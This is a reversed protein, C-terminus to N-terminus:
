ASAAQVVAVVGAQDVRERSAGMRALVNMIDGQYDPDDARFFMKSDSKALHVFDFDVALIVDNDDAANVVSEDLGDKAIPTASNDFRPMVDTRIIDFGLLKILDGDKFVAGVKDYQQNNDFTTDTLLQTYADETMFFARKGTNLVLKTQEIIIAKASQLDAVTFKKRNGTADALYAVAAAGTTDVVNAANLNLMSTNKGGWRFLTNQAIRKILENLHDQLVEPVKSYSLEWKEAEHVVTTDSSLEDIVYTIDSDARKVMQIPYVSRNRKVNPAAGSQPIHVVTSNLVNGARQKARSLWEYTKYLNRAIMTDWFEVAVDFVLGGDRHDKLNPNRIIQVLRIFVLLGAIAFIGPIMEVPDVAYFEDTISMMVAVSIITLLLKSTNNFFQKKM